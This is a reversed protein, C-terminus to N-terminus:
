EETGYNLVYCAVIDSHVSWGIGSAGARTLEEMQVASYLRDAGPGGYTEPITLCLMGLEGARNWIKRDVHQQAEWAEHHPMVEEALFRRTTKRFDEHEAAYITRPIMPRVTPVVTAPKAATM